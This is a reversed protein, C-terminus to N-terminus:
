GSKNNGLLKFLTGLSQNAYEFVSKIFEQKEKQKSQYIEKFNNIVYYFDDNRMNEMDDWGIGGDSYATLEMQRNLINVYHDYAM